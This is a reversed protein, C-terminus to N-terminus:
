GQREEPDAGEGILILIRGIKSIIKLPFLIRAPKIISREIREPMVGPRFPDILFFINGPIPSSPLGGPPNPLWSSIELKVKAM